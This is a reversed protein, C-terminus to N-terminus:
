TTVGSVSSVDTVFARLPKARNEVQQKVGPAFQDVAEM